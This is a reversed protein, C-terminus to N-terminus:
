GRRVEHAACASNREDTYGIAANQPYVVSQPRRSRTRNSHERRPRLIRLDPLLRHCDFNPPHHGTVVLAPAGNNGDVLGRGVDM